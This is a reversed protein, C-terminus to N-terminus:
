ILEVTVSGGTAGTLNARIFKYRAEINDVTKVTVVDLGSVDFWDTGDISIQITVTGGGFTGSIYVTRWRASTNDSFNEITITAGTANDSADLLLTM